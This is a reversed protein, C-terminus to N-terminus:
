RPGEGEGASGVPAKSDVPATGEAATQRARWEAYSQGDPIKGGAGVFWAEWAQVQQERVAPEAEPDLPLAAGGKGRLAQLAEASERRILQAMPESGRMERFAVLFPWCAGVRPANVGDLGVLAKVAYARAVPEPDHELMTDLMKIADARDEPFRGARALLSLYGNARVRADSDNAANCLAVLADRGPIQELAKVLVIRYREDRNRQPGTLEDQLLNAVTEPHSKGLEILQELAGEDVTGDLDLREKIDGLKWDVSVRQWKSVVIAVAVLWLVGALVVLQMDLGREGSAGALPTSPDPSKDPASGDASGAAPGSAQPSGSELRDTKLEETM